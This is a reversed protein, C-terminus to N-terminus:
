LAFVARLRLIIMCETHVLFTRFIAVKEGTMLIFLALVIEKGYFPVFSKYCFVVSMNEYFPVLLLVM